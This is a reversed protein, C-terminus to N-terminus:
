IYYLDGFIRTKFVAHVTDSYTKVIDNNVLPNFALGINVCNYLNEFQKYAVPSCSSLGKKLEKINIKNKQLCKEYIEDKTEENISWKKILKLCVDFVSDPIIDSLNERKLADNLALRFSQTLNDYNSNILVPLLSIDKEKLEFLMDYLEPDVKGIKSVLRMWSETNKNKGVLYSLVLLLFSKGKGYPGILATANDRTYGLFSKIYKKIVDCIDTTPIYEAVKSEKGLDLELNISSQFNKNVTILDSYIM